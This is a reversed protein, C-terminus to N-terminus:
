SDLDTIFYERDILYDGAILYVVNRFGEPATGSQETKLKFDIKKFESAFMYCLFEFDFAQQNNPINAWVGEIKKILVPFGWASSGIFWKNKKMIPELHTEFFEIAKKSKFENLEKDISKIYKRAKKNNYYKVPLGDILYIEARNTYSIRKIVELVEKITELKSVDPIEDRKRYLVRLTPDALKGDREYFDNYQYIGACSFRITYRKDIKM